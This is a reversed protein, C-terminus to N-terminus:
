LLWPILRGDALEATEESPADEVAASFAELGQALAQQDRPSMRAVVGDILGRRKAMLDAVFSTGDDTLRLVVNRRDTEDTARTVMGGVVLQDCTRSANSPNVGLHQAIASLNMRGRSNLLVLVRLQPVTIDREIESLTRAVIATMTRSVPMMAETARARAADVDADM